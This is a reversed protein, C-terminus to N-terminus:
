WCNKGFQVAETVDDVTMLLQTVHGKIILFPVCKYQVYRVEDGTNKERNLQVELIGTKASTKQSIVKELMHSIQETSRDPKAPNFLELIKKLSQKSRQSESLGSFQQFTSNTKLVTYGSNEPVILLAPEPVNELNKIAENGNKVFM